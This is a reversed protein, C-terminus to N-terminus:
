KGSIICTTPTTISWGSKKAKILGAVSLAENPTVSEQLEDELIKQAAAIDEDSVIWGSGKTTNVIETVNSKRHAIRDGICTALSEKTPTFDHDFHKAIPYCATTQVVHVQTPLSNHTIYEGIGQATTGSSTAIFIAGMDNHQTIERALPYYSRPALGDTSQRLYAVGAEKGAMFANQKPQDVQTITINRDTALHTLTDKKQQPIRKGIYVGLSLLNNPHKTNHEKIALIAAIAANGTSSIAFKKTDNQTYERHIMEPIVRGKHSQYPSLDERKLFLSPINLQKALEPHSSQPTNM